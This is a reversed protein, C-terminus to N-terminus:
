DHSAGGKRNKRKKFAIGLKKKKFAIGLKKM